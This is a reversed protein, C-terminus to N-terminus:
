LAEASTTRYARSVIILVHRQALVLKRWHKKNLMDKWASSAYGVIAVFVGTYIIKLAKYSLGYDRKAVRRLANFMSKAKDAINSVHNGIKLGLIGSEFTIGLYTFKEVNKITSGQLYITPPRGSDLKGKLIMMVTKSKSLTMKHKKCWNDIINVIKQGLEELTKRTDGSIIIVGDDAYAIVIFGARQITVLMNNFVLNWLVPGLLSGQPCGKDVKREVRGAELEIMAIRNELYDQILTIIENPTEIKRLSDIIDPWWLNNFAGKIDLFIGLSYKKDQENVVSRLKIIANETSMGPRFGFQACTLTDDVRRKIRSLILGEPIKGLTPFLCIPRYSSIETKDKNKAKM